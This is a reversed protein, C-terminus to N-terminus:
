SFLDNIILEKQMIGSYKNQKIGFTTLMLLHVAKRTGMRVTKQFFMKHIRFQECFYRFQKIIVEKNM